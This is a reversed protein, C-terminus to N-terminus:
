GDSKRCLYRILRRVQTLTLTNDSERIYISLRKGGFESM